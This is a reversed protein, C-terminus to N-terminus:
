YKRFKGPMLFPLPPGALTSLCCPISTGVPDLLMGARFGCWLQPCNPPEHSLTHSRSLSSLYECAIIGERLKRLAMLITSLDKNSLSPTPLTSSPTNSATSATTNDTASSSARGLSLASFRALLADRDVADSCFSLYREVIKTYFREQQKHDLLRRPINAFSSLQIGPPVFRTEGKSPLGMSELPDLDVPKLRQWPGPPGRSPM